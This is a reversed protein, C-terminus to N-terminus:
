DIVEADIVVPEIDTRTSPPGFRGRRYTDRIVEAAQRACWAIPPIGAAATILHDFASTFLAVVAALGRIVGALSFPYGHAAM